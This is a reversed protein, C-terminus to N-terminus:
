GAGTTIPVTLYTPDVRWGALDRWGEDPSAAVVKNDVARFDVGPMVLGLYDSAPLLPVYIEGGDQATPTDIHIMQWGSPFDGPSREGPPFDGTWGEGTLWMEFERRLFRLTKGGSGGLGVFLFKRLM